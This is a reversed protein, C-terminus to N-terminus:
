APASTDEPIFSRLIIGDPTKTSKFGINLLKMQIRNTMKGKSLTLTVVTGHHGVADLVVWGMCEDVSVGTEQYLRMLDAALTQRGMIRKIPNLPGTLLRKLDESLDHLHSTMIRDMDLAVITMPGMAEGRLPEPREDTKTVPGMTFTPVDGVPQEGPPGFVPGALEAVPAYEVDVPNAPRPPTRSTVLGALMDDEPTRPPPADPNRMPGAPVEAATPLGAMMDDDPPAMQGPDVAQHIIPSETTRQDNNENIM